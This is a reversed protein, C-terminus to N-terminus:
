VRVPVKAYGRVTSTHVMEARDHDVEWTPYRRLVERLAVQGELRALAAGICFHAGYGFSLHRDIPRHVDFRDPDAFHREDRNGAGNLLVLKSGAPVTRGHLECDRAVWRANVPSPAEYRLIEEVANPILGPDDVLSARQDPHRDLLVATWGLHRAVTETGAVAIMRVFDVIEDDTLRRVTGGEDLDTHALVSLLDDQPEARREALLGPLADFLVQGALDVTSPGGSGADGAELHFAADVGRRWEDVMGEPLGLLALIMTPPITAAYDDVFDFESAGAVEDLLSNCLAAVREELGSVAKVTFARSVLKRHWSHEPPDMWIMMSTRVPDATILEIVTAHSSLFTDTDLVARLVDDYRSLAFFGYRDNWYLPAEDRLRRWVAQANEDVVFDYPDYYVADGAHDTVTV